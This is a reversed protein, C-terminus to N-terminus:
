KQCDHCDPVAVIRNWAKPEGPNISLFWSFFLIPVPPKRQRIPAALDRTEEMYRDSITVFPNEQDNWECRPPHM